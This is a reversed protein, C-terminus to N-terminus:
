FTYKVGLELIRHGVHSTAQGFTPTGACQIGSAYTVGNIKQGITTNPCPLVQTTTANPDSAPLGNGPFLMNAGTVVQSFDNLNLKLNNDNTVFSLLDHNLFNFAAFRFQLTQRETIKFNKMLTLDSNWFLPGPLYPMSATGLEGPQNPVFCNNNIFYNKGSIGKAPNCV